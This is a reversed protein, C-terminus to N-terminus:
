LVEDKVEVKTVATERRAVIWDGLVKWVAEKEPPKMGAALGSTTTTM